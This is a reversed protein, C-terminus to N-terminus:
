LKQLNFLIVLPLMCDTYSFTTKYICAESFTSPAVYIFTAATDCFSFWSGRGTTTSYTM